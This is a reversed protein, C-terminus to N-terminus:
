EGSSLVVDGVARVTLGALVATPQCVHGAALPSGPSRGRVFWSERESAGSATGAHIGDYASTDIGVTDEEFVESVPALRPPHEKPFLLYELSILKAPPQGEAMLSHSAGLNARVGCKDTIKAVSRRLVDPEFMEELRASLHGAQCRCHGEQGRRFVHLRGQRLRHGDRLLHSGDPLRARTPRFAAPLQRKWPKANGRYLDRRGDGVDRARADGNARRHDPARIVPKWMATALQEGQRYDEEPGRMLAFVIPQRAKGSGFFDFRAELDTEENFVSPHAPHCVFVSIDDRAPVLGAHPGAPDLCVLM